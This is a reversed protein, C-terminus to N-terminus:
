SSLSYAAPLIGPPKRRRSPRGGSFAMRMLRRISRGMRGRNGWQSLSSIWIMAVVREMSSSTGGSTSATVPADM